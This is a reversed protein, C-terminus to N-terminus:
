TDISPPVNTRQRLEQLVPLVRRLEEATDVPTSYPRTSEGGVDLIEAGAGVLAACANRGSGRRCLSRRRLLRDPTVNVIGMLRPAALRAHLNAAGASPADSLTPSLDSLNSVTM